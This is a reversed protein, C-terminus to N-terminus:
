PILHVMENMQSKTSIGCHSLPRSLFCWQLVVCCLRYRIYGFVSSFITTCNNFPSGMFIFHIIIPQMVKKRKKSKRKEKEKEKKKDQPNLVGGM